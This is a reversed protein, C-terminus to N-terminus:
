PVLAKAIFAAGVAALIRIEDTTPYERAEGPSLEISNAATVNAGFNIRFSDVANSPNQIIALLRTPDAIMVVQAASNTGVGSHDVFTGVVAGGAGGGVSVGPTGDVGCPVSFPIFPGLGTGSLDSFRKQGIDVTVAAM